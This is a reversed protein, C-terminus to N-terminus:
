IVSTMFSGCIALYSADRMHSHSSRLLIRKSLSFAIAVHAFRQCLIGRVESAYRVASVFGESPRVCGVKRVMSSATLNERAMRQVRYRIMVPCAKIPSYVWRNQLCGCRILDGALAAFRYLYYLVYQKFAWCMISGAASVESSAAAESVEWLWEIVRLSDGHHKM